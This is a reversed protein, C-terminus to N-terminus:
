DESCYRSVLRHRVADHCRHVPRNGVHIFAMHKDREKNTHKVQWCPTEVVAIGTMISRQEDAFADTRQSAIRVNRNTESRRPFVCQLHSLNKDTGGDEKEGVSQGFGHIAVTFLKLHFTDCLYGCTSTHVLLMFGAHEYLLHGIGNVLEHTIGLLAIVQRHHCYLIDLLLAVYPHALADYQGIIHLFHWAQRSEDLLHTLRHSEIIGM